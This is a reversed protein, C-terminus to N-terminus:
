YSIQDRHPLHDRNWRVLAADSTNTFLFGLTPSEVHGDCFVVNLNGQHRAVMFRLWEQNLKGHWLLVFGSPADRPGFYLSENFVDGIAMMESPSAVESEPLPADGALTYPISPTYAGLLGLQNTFIGQQRVGYANYGYSGNSPDTPCHFVGTALLNTTLPKSVGFGGHELQGIWSREIWGEWGESGDTSASLIGSPYTQSDAVFNQLAVGWQHLNSVCKIRQAEQKSRSISPLLLAALLAIVTMVVLLELLTFARLRGSKVQRFASAADPMLFHSLPETVKCNMRRKNL